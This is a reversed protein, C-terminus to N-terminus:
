EYFWFLTHCLASFAPGPPFSHGYDSYMDTKM